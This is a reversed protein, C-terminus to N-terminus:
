FDPVVGSVFKERVYLVKCINAMQGTKDFNM